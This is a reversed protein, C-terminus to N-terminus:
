LRRWENADVGSPGHSGRPKMASMRVMSTNIKELISQHYPLSKPHENRELYNLIAKNPKPHRERLNDVVTKIDVKDTLSLVGGKGEDTLSPIVKFNKEPQCTNMLNKTNMLFQKAETRSVGEQISKAELFLSDINWNIWQDVRRSITKKNSTDDELRTRLLILHHMVLACYMATEANSDNLTDSLFLYDSM